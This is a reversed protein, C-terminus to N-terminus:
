YEDEDKYECDDVGGEGEDVDEGICIGLMFECFLMELFPVIVRVPKGFGVLVTM